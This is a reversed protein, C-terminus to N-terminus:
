ISVFILTLQWNLLLLYIVIAIVTLGERLMVAIADSVAASIQNVNFTVTSLLHGSAQREDFSLTLRRFAEMDQCRLCHVIRFALVSMYYHGRLGLVARLLGDGMLVFQVLM